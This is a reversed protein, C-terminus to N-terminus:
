LNGIPVRPDRLPDTQNILALFSKLVSTFIRPHIKVLRRTLRKVSMMKVQSLIISRPIGHIEIPFYFKLAKQASTLPLGWFLDKNFKRFVLVPREFRDHKGDQEGGVNEGLSCWWIERERFFKRGDSAEIDRKVQHWLQYNKM